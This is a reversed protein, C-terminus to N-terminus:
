ADHGNHGAKRAKSFAIAVMMKKMAEKGKKNGLKQASAPPNNFVESFFRKLRGKGPNDKSYMEDMKGMDDQEKGGGMMESIGTMMGGMSKMM